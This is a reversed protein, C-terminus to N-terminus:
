VKEEPYFRKKELLLWHHPYFRLYDMMINAFKQAALKMSADKELDSDVLIPPEIVGKQVGARKDRVMFAPSIAAGYRRAIKFPGSALPMMKGFLNVEIGERGEDALFAVIKNDQLANIVKKLNTTPIIEIGKKERLVNFLKNTYSNSHPRALFCMRYGCLAVGAGGWEWNGFHASLLIVGKGRDLAADLNEIGVLYAERFFRERTIRDLWLFERLYRAFNWFVERAVEKEGSSTLTLNHFIAERYKKYKSVPLFFLVDAVREAIWYAIRSPLYGALFEGLKYLLFVLM